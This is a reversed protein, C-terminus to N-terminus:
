GDDSRATLPFLCEDYSAGREDAREEGINGLSLIYRKQCKLSNFTVYFM